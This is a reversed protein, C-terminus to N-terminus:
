NFGDLRNFWGGLKSVFLDMGHHEQCLSTCKDDVLEDPVVWDRQRPLGRKEGDFKFFDRRKEDTLRDGRFFYCLEWEKHKADVGEPLNDFSFKVCYDKKQDDWDLCENHWYPDEYNPRTNCTDNASMLMHKDLKHNYYGFQYIYAMQHNVSVNYFVAPDNDAQNLSNDTTCFCITRNLKDGPEYDKLVAREHIATPPTATHNAAYPAVTHSGNHTAFALSLLAMIAFSLMSLHM